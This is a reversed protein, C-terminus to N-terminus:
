SAAVALSTALLAWSVWCLQVAWRSRVTCTAVAMWSIPAVTPSIAPLAERAASTALCALSCASAPARITAWARWPITPRESSISCTDPTMSDSALWVSEMPLMRSVMRLMESCVLRSASLAAM